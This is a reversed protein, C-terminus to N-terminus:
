AALPVQMLRDMLPDRAPRSEANVPRITEPQCPPLQTWPGSRVPSDSASAQSPNIKGKKKEKYKKKGGQILTSDDMELFFLCPLPYGLSSLSPTILDRCTGTPFVNGLFRGHPHWISPFPFSPFFLSVFCQIFHLRLVLRHDFAASVSSFFFIRSSSFGRGSRSRNRVGDM